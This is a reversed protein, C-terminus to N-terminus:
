IPRKKSQHKSVTLILSCLLIRFATLITGFFTVKHRKLVLADYYKTEIKIQPISSKTFINCVQKNM